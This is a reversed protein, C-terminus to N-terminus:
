RCLVRQILRFLGSIIGMECRSYGRYKKYYYALSDFQLVARRYADYKAGITKGQEHLISVSPLYYCRKGIAALRDSLINEEAYLFTGEDFMGAAFFAEAPVMFFCGMLKYHWGEQAKAPYNLGFVEEKRSKSYFPTGLYMWVCKKWAGLYKEPGQRHGDLGIVEPGIAGAEPLETLKEALADAVEPSTLVIDNNSFLIFEPRLHDRLWEAGRNNGYAFGKNPVPLVTAHGGLQEQLAAAEEETAGADAVVLHWPRRIKPLEERAFRVTLADTRYNVIVIGIM